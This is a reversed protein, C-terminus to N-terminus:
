SQSYHLSNTGENVALAISGGSRLPERSIFGNRNKERRPMLVGTPLRELNTRVGSPLNMELYRTFKPSTLWLPNISAIPLVDKHLARYFSLSSFRYNGKKSKEGTKYLMKKVEKLNVRTIQGEEESTGAQNQFTLYSSNERLKKASLAPIVIIEAEDTLILRQRQFTDKKSFEMTAPLELALVLEVGMLTLQGYSFLRNIKAQNEFTTFTM